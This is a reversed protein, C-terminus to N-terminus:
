KAELANADGVVKYANIIDKRVEEMLQEINAENDDDNAPGYKGMGTKKM